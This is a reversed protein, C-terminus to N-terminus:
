LLVLCRLPGLSTSLADTVCIPTLQSASVRLLPLVRRINISILDVPRCFAFHHVHTELERVGRGQMAVCNRVFRTTYDCLVHWVTDDHIHIRKAKRIQASTRSESPAPALSSVLQEIMKIQVCACRSPVASIDSQASIQTIQTLSWTNTTMCRKQNVEDKLTKAKTM